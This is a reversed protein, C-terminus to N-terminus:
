VNWNRREEGANRRWKSLELAILGRKCAVEPKKRSDTYEFPERRRGGYSTKSSALLESLVLYWLHFCTKQVHIMNFM